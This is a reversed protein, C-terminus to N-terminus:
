TTWLWPNASPSGRTMGAFGITIPGGHREDIMNAVHVDGDQGPSRAFVADAIQFKRINM